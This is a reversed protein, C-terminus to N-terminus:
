ILHMRHIEVMSEKAPSIGHGEAIDTNNERYSIEEEHSFSSRQAEDEEDQLDIKFAEQVKV